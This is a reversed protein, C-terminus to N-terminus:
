YFRGLPATKTKIAEFLFDSIYHDLRTKYLRFLHRPLFKCYNLYKKPLINGMLLFNVEARNRKFFGELFNDEIAKDVAKEIADHIDMGSKRNESIM